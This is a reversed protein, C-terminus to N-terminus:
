DHWLLIPWPEVDGETRAVVGGKAILDIAIGIVPGDHDPGLRRRPRIRCYLVVEVVVVVVVSSTVSTVILLLFHVDGLRSHDEHPDGEGLHLTHGQDLPSESVEGDVFVVRGPVAQRPDLRRELREDCVAPAQVAVHTLLVPRVNFLAQSTVGLLFSPLSADLVDVPGPPDQGDGGPVEPLVSFSMRSRDSLDIGKEIAFIMSQDSFSPRPAALVPHPAIRDERVSIM